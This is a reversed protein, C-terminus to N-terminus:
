TLVIIMFKISFGYKFQVPAFRKRLFQLRLKLNSGYVRALHIIGLGSGDKRIHM